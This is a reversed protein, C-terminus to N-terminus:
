IFVILSRKKLLYLASDISGTVYILYIMHSPQLGAPLCRVYFMQDFICAFDAVIGIFVSLKFLGLKVTGLIDIYLCYFFGLKNITYWHLIAYYVM